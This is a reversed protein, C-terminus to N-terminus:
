SIGNQAELDDIFFRSQRNIPRGKFNSKLAGHQVIWPFERWYIMRSNRLVYQIYTDIPYNWPEGLKPYWDKFQQIMKESCFVKTFSAPVYYCVCSYFEGGPAYGRALPTKRLAREFFQIVGDGHETVAKEFLSEFNRGLIIDDEMMCVGSFREPDTNLVELHKSFLDCNNKDAEVLELSPIREKIRLANEKREPMPSVLMAFRISKEENM